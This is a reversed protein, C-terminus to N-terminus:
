FLKGLQESGNGMFIKQFLLSQKHIDSIQCFEEPNKLSFNEDKTIFIHFENKQNKEFNFSLNSSKAFKELNSVAIENDVIVLFDKWRFKRNGKKNFDITSPMFTRKRKNREYFGGILLKMM